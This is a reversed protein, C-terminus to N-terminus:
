AVLRRQLRSLADDDFGGAILMQEAGGYRRDILELADALADSPSSAILERLTDDIPGAFRATAEAIMRDVWEGALNEASAAYDALVHERSVGVATLAVAVVMGTRDKGATCHVLVGGDPADAILRVAGVLAGVRDTAISRYVDRLRPAPRDSPIAAGELIPVHVTEVAPDLASPAQRLEEGDRLDIIRVVGQAAFQEIGLPSLGHLADSRFLGTARTVGGRAPYGGTSRFNYTGEITIPAGFRPETASIM